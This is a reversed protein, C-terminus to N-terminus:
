QSLADVPALLFATASKPALWGQLVASNGSRRFVVPTGQLLDVIQWDAPFDVQIFDGAIDCFRGNYFTIIRSNDSEFSNAYLNERLTPILPTCSSSRFTEAHEKLVPAIRSAYDLFQPSYWSEMRGKLWVALGHFFCRHLDDVAVPIPRIGSSVMEIMAVEPFVFRQLQFKTPNRSENTEVMGHNFAGDIYKVLADCPMQECYLAVNPTRMDLKARVLGLMKSEEFPPNSPVPHGHESSWCGLSPGSFGYQDIYVADAGTREAVEVVQESLSERWAEVGPCVYFEKEGSWWMPQGKENVLQWSPLAMEALPSRRDM